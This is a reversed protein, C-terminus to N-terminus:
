RAGAAKTQELQVLIEDHRKRSLPYRIAVAIAVCLFFAPVLSTLARIAMLASEPQEASPDFGSAELLLGSILFAFAGGLKRLFTFFGNYVGERRLGTTLEDEDIVEGVMSWPMLDAVAYGIGALGASVFVLWRPWEPTVFFLFVLLLVWWSAGIVFILHKDIRRAIRLWVPLSLVVVGLLAFLTPGFDARRGLWYTFFFAFSLGAIDVAIRAPVYLACLRLYTRHRLLSKLSDRFSEQSRAREHEPREWSAAYVAAWPLVLWVALLSSALAYGPAGGGLTTVLAPLGAAILTGIVAAGSRFTNLSTREDYSRTMEPILAMYPVSIITMALSLAVYVSTYYLFMATQGQFPTTWLLAFFIGFPVAGILFYPRRRGRRWRTGDSIRGMLPDTIADFIRATWVVLGALAPRLGAVEALFILFVLALASLALSVTHDGLAFVAKTGISIAQRERTENGADRLRM